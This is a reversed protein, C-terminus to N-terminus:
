DSWDFDPGGDHYEFDDSQGGLVGSHQRVDM